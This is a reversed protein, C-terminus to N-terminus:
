LQKLGVGPETRPEHGKRAPYEMVRGMGKSLTSPLRVKAPYLPTTGCFDISVALGEEVTFLSLSNFM